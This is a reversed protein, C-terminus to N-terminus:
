AGWAKDNLVTQTDAGLRPAPRSDVMQEGNIVIPTRVSPVHGLLAEPNELDVKMGRSQVQVDAFVDAVTNIPGAPVGLKELASSRFLM